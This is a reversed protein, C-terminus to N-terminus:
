QGSVVSHPVDIEQGREASQLITHFAAVTRVEEDITCGAYVARGAIADLYHRMERLYCSEYTFSPAAAAPIQGSDARQAAVLRSVERSAEMAMAWDSAQEFGIEGNRNDKGHYVRITPQNQHWEITGEEGVIRIHRGVTGREIV